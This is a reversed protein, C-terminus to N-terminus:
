EHDLPHQYQLEPAFTIFLFIIRKAARAAAINAKFAQVGYALRSILAGNLTPGTYTLGLIPM